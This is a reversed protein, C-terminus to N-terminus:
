LRIWEEVSEISDVGLEEYLKPAWKGPYGYVNRQNNGKTDHVKQTIDLLDCNEQIFDNNVGLDFEESLLDGLDGDFGMLKDDNPLLWGIACHRGKEDGYICSNGDTCQGGQKVLQSFVETVVELPTKDKTLIM